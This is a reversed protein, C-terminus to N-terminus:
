CRNDNAAPTRKNAADELAQIDDSRASFMQLKDNMELFSDWMMGQIKLLGGIPSNTRHIGDLKWQLQLLKLQREVPASNILKRVTESRQRDAEEPNTKYLTMWQDFDFETTM